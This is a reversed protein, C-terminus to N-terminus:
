DNIRKRIHQPGIEELSSCGALIMCREFESTLIDLAKEVGEQGGASLGRVYARGISCANAGLAIAKFIDTGRRIGGDVIIEMDPGVAARVEEVLEIPAPTGDLQRGGHNSLIVATAGVEKAKLADAVSMIGKIAFPGEWSDIMKKADDWTLDKKFLTGLAQTFAQSDGMSPQPLEPFNGLSMSNSSLLYKITWAPRMMYQFMSKLTLRPPIALGSRADRERNGGVVTDVTLCLGKYGAKEARELLKSSLAQDNLVYVQFLKNCPSAEAIDELPLNSFTSATYLTRRSAAARVGALEADTPCMMGSFGTASIYFPHPIKCGMVETATTLASIDQLVKPVIQYRSFASINNALSVEDDAGGEVYDTVPVPLRKRALRGLDDINFCNKLTTM